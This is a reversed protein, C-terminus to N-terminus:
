LNIFLCCKFTQALSYNTYLLDHKLLLSVYNGQIVSGKIEQCITFVLGHQNRLNVKMMKDENGM